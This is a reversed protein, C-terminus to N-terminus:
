IRQNADANSNGTLNIGMSQLLNFRFKEELDTMNKNEFNHYTVIQEQIWSNVSASAKQRDEEPLLKMTKQNYVFELFGKDWESLTPAQGDSTLGKTADDEKTIGIRLLAQMRWQIENPLAQRDRVYGALVVRQHNLWRGLGVYGVNGHFDLPVDYHGFKNKFGILYRFYEFWEIHAQTAADSLGVSTPLPKKPKLKPPSSKTPPLSKALDTVHADHDIQENNLVVNVLLDLGPAPGFASPASAFRISKLRDPTVIPSRRRSQQMLRKLEAQRAPTLSPSCTAEDDSVRRIAAPTAPVIPKGNSFAPKSTLVDPSAKVPIKADSKAQNPRTIM